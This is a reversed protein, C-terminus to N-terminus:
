YSAASLFAGATYGSLGQIMALAKIQGPRQIEHPVRKVVATGESGEINDIFAIPLGQPYFTPVDMDAM